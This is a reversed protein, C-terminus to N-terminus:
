KRFTFTLIFKCVNLKLLTLHFFRNYFAQLFTVKFFPWQWYFFLLLHQNWRFFFFLFKVNWWLSKFKFFFCFVFFRSALKQQLVQRTVVANSVTARITHATYIDNLIVVKYVHLCIIFHQSLKHHTFIESFKFKQEM